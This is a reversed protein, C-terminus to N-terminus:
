YKDPNLDLAEALARVAVSEQDKEVGDAVVAAQAARM